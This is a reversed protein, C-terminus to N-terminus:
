TFSLIILLYLSVQAERSIRTLSSAILGCSSMRATFWEKTALRLIMEAYQQRFQNEEMLEAVAM